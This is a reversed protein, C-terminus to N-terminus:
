GSTITPYRRQRDLGKPIMVDIVTRGRTFRYGYGDNTRTEDFGTDTLYCATTRLADRRMWVGVVVDGDDTPRYGAAGHEALHLATMRGGVLVWPPSDIAEFDLLTSWMAVQYNPM